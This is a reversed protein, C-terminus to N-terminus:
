PNMEASPRNAANEDAPSTVIVGWLMFTDTGSGFRGKGRCRSEIPDVEGIKRQFAFGLRPRPGSKIGAVCRFRPKSVHFHSSTSGRKELMVTPVFVLQVALPQFIKRIGRVIFSRLPISPAIYALEPCFHIHHDFQQRSNQTKDLLESAWNM